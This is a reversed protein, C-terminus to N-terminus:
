LEDDAENGTIRDVMALIVIVCVMALAAWAILDTLTSKGQSNLSQAVFLVFLSPLILSRAM